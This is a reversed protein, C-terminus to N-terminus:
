KVGTVITNYLGTRLAKYHMLLKRFPHNTPLKRGFRGGQSGPQCTGNVIDLGCVSMLNGLSLPTWSNLHMDTDNATWVRHRKLLLPMECPVVIRILGGPKLVRYLERITHAPNEVHEMAHNSIILDVSQDAIKSIDPVVLDLKAQAVESAVPNVEVGIRKSAPLASLVGGTGCGFDLITIHESALDEFLRARQIQIATSRASSRQEHYQKGKEGQYLDVAPM